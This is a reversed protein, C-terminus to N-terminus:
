MQSYNLGSEVMNLIVRSDDVLISKVPTLFPDQLVLDDCPLWDVHSVNDVHDVFVRWYCSNQLSATAFAIKRDFMESHSSLSQSSGTYELTFQLQITHNSDFIAILLRSNKPLSQILNTLYETLVPHKLLEPSYLKTHKLISSIISFLLANM